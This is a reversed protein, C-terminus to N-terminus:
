FRIGTMVSFYKMDSFSQTPTWLYGGTSEYRLELFMKMKKSSVRQDYGVSIWVGNPNKSMMVENNEFTETNGPTSREATTTAKVDKFLVVSFGTKLYPTSGEDLFNYRLGVPVRVISTSITMDYKINEFSTGNGQHIESHAKYSCNAYSAEVTLFLRDYVRPVSFDFIFSASMSNSPTFTAFYHGADPKMTSRLYALSFGYNVKSAPREDKVAVVGKCQNYKSVLSTLSGETYKYDNATLGCDAVLTNLLGVYRRDVRSKPGDDTQIVEKNPYPLELFDTKKVFFISGYRYLTLPGNTLIRAFVQKQDTTPLIISVWRQDGVIGFAKLELSTFSIAESEKTSKFSCLLPIKGGAGYRVLGVISDGNSKVAYGPRYDQSLLIKPFLLLALCFLGLLTSRHNRMFFIKWRNLLLM